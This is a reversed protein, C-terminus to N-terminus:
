TRRTSYSYQTLIPTTRDVTAAEASRSNNEKACWCLYCTGSAKPTANGPFQSYGVYTLLAVGALSVLLQLARRGLPV